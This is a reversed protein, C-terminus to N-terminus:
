LTLTQSLLPNETTADRASISRRSFMEAFRQRGSALSSMGQCSDNEMVFAALQALTVSFALFILQACKPQDDLHDHQPVRDIDLRRKILNAGFDKRYELLVDRAWRREDVVV